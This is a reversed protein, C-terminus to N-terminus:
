KGPEQSARWMQAIQSNNPVPQKVIRPTKESKRFGASQIKPGESKAGLDRAERRKAKAIDSTDKANKELFCPECILMANEIVPKGTLGDPNVHDVQFKKALAGCKECFIVGDRTARKICAVKIAKPFEKRAM